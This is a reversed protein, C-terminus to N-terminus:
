MMWHHFFDGGSWPNIGPSSESPHIRSASSCPTRVIQLKRNKPHNWTWTNRPLDECNAPKELCFLMLFAMKQTSEVQLISQSSILVMSILYIPGNLSFELKWHLISITILFTGTILVLQINSRDSKLFTFKSM